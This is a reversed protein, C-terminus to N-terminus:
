GGKSRFGESRATGFNYVKGTRWNARIDYLHKTLLVSQSVARPIKSALIRKDLLSTPYIDLADYVNETWIKPTARAQPAPASVFAQTGHKPGVIDWVAEKRNNWQTSLEIKPARDESQDLHLQSQDPPYISRPTTPRGPWGALTIGNQIYVQKAEDQDGNDVDWMPMDDEDVDDLTDEEEEEQEEEDESEDGVDDAM